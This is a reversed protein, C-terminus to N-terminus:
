TRVTATEIAAPTAASVEIKGSSNSYRTADDADDQDGHERQHVQTADALAPEDEAARRVDVEHRSRRVARREPQEAERRARHGVVDRGGPQSPASTASGSPM